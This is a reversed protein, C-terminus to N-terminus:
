RKAPAPAPEKRVLHNFLIGAIGFIVSLISIASATPLVGLTWADPRFFLEMWFRGLPYWILYFFLIDGNRLRGGLRRILLVALGAGVFNWLSEYLFTPHFRSTAAITGVPPCMFDGYRHACDIHIGWPLDTPPGYLEQNIYNGWRGIAQAVLVGPM